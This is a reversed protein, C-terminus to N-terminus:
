LYVSNEDTYVENILTFFYFSFFFTTFENISFVYGKINLILFSLIFFNSIFNLYNNKINKKMKFTKTIFFLVIALLYFVGGLWIDNIYGVDTRFNLVNDGNAYNGTGFFFQVLETPVKYNNKNVFYDGIGYIANDSGGFINLIGSTFWQYTDSNFKKLLGLALIIFLFSSLISVLLNKFVKRKNNKILTSFIIFIGLVIIIFSIRANIVASFFLFPTLFLYKKSYYISLYITIICLFAQVAPLTYGLKSSLGYWRFSALQSFRTDSYGYNIMREIFWTQFETNFFALIAFGSQVIGVCLMINTFNMLSFKNKKFYYNLMILSPFISFLWFLVSKSAEMPSYFNSYAILALYIFFLFFITYLKLYNVNIEVKKKTLFMNLLLYINSFFGLGYLINMSMIPPYYILFFLFIVVLLNEFFKTM